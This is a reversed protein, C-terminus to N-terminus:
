KMLVMKGTLSMPKVTTVGEEQGLADPEGTLRYFYVGSPLMSADFEVQQQGADMMERDALTAVEQGLTNYVKLSVISAHSLSFEITTTPNFPNPYNQVLRFGEPAVNNAQQDSGVAPTIVLAAIGSPALYPVDQLRVVGKLRLSDAWHLTDMPATFAANLGCLLSDLSAYLGARGAFTRHYTMMSDGMSAIERVLLGDFPRAPATLRLEGFGRTTIGLQSLLINFKLTLLDAFTKNNQKTPPLSSQPKVFPKTGLLDFGQGIVTHMGKDYLSKYMDGSKKLAVWGYFKSSDPLTKAVGIIWPQTAVGAQTFALDRVSAANPM